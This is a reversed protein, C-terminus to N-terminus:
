RRYYKRHAAAPHRNVVPHHHRRVVAAKAATRARPHYYALQISNATSYVPTIKKSHANTPTTFMSFLVFLSCLTILKTPIKNIYFHM